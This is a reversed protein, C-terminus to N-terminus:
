FSSKIRGWTTEEVATGVNYEGTRLLKALAFYQRATAESGRVTMDNNFGPDGDEVFFVFSLGAGNEGAQADLNRPTSVEPGGEELLDWAALSFEYYTDGGTDSTWPDAAWAEAPEVRVAGLLNPPEGFGRWAAPGDCGECEPYRETFNAEVNGPAAVYEQSYGLKGRTRGHDQPDLIFGIMDGDWRRVANGEHSLTDDHIAMYVYWRNGAWGMKTTVDLDDRTPLPRDGEDKWEDITLIYEPDYWGWDDDFGDIKMSSPNPVQLMYYPFGSANRNELTPPNWYDQAQVAGTMALALGLITLSRRM